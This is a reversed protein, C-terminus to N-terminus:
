VQQGGLWCMNLDPCRYLAGSAKSEDPVAIRGYREALPQRFPLQGHPLAVTLLRQAPAVIVVM